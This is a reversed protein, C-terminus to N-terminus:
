NLNGAADAADQKKKKQELYMAVAYGVFAIAALVIIIALFSIFPASGTFTFDAVTVDENFDVGNMAVSISASEKYLTDAGEDYPPTTCKIFTENVFIASAEGFRGFKCRMGSMGSGSSLSQTGKEQNPQLAMPEFFESGEAAKVYIEGIRGVEMQPPHASELIPQDYFRFVHSTKTWPDFEDQSLAVSFPIDRPLAASSTLPLFDPTRCAIRTYSLVEAEVIAYNAPSGFRCRPTTGPEDSYGQGQVIVTTVGGTPGSNPSLARIGYPRFMTKETPTTYSFSNLSVSAPLSDQDEAPLPMNDVVCKVQRESIYYAKGKATGIKCGLEALPYDARFNDGYFNIIGAGDSPGM